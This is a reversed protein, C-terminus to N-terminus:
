FLDDLEDNLEPMRGHKQLYEQILESERMTYMENEEYDFYAVGERTSIESELEQKLNPTGKIYILEHNENYFRYVGPSEPITSVNEENFELLEKLIPLMKKEVAQRWKNKTPRKDRVTGTPCIEVCVSCFKCGSEVESPAPRGVIIGDDTSTFGLANAERIEVCGRVCRTCNICYNYNWKLTKEEVVPQDQFVYKPTEPSLGVYEAVFRLECAPFLDCCREEVPVGFTCQIRDCGERYECTICVHPHNAFIGALAKQRIARLEEGETVVDMGDAVKETCAKVTSGNIKVVCLNCGSYREGSRGTYEKEGRYIKDISEMGGAPSVSPHYCLNPIYIRNDLAVELVTKGDEANIETGNIRIRPMQVGGFFLFLLSNM